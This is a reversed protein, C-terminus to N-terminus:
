FLVNFKCSIFEKSGAMVIKRTNKLVQFCVELKGLSELAPIFCLLTGPSELILLILAFGTQFLRFAM